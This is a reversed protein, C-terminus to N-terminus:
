FIQDPDRGYIGGTFIKPLDHIQELFPTLLQSHLSLNYLNRFNFRPNYDLVCILIGPHIENSPPIHTSLLGDMEVRM